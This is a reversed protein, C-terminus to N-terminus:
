KLLVMKKTEIFDGAVLRYIYVGSAVPSGSRNRGNWIKQYYGPPQADEDWRMIEQGMLNYVVLSVDSSKPLAYRLTTEPNFPNPFNRSLSYVTPISPDSSSSPKNGLAAKEQAESTSALLGSAGITVMGVPAELTMAKSITMTENYFSTVISVIGGSSVANVAETVTNYPRLVTGDELTVPHGKDAYKVNSGPFTQIASELADNEFGTGHNGQDPPNCGANTHIGITLTTGNVIVPSGSSGGATDVIYEIVVDSAGQIDEELFPGSDTQQTNSDSNRGGGSGPPTSDSGYGTVRVEGPNDDRSMRYFSQQAQVPLLGTNSNPNCDFVAWDNGIGGNTFNISPQNIPYQDVPDSFNITGDDDSAPVNFELIDMDGLVECHGATLHSGNSAIWGTCRVPLIRGVAPDTSSIRDDSGCLSITKGLAEADEREGVSIQNIRFFVSRDEPAVHLEIEVADGNFYASSNNWQPLSRADLRQRGSDELSNITIYTLSDLHYEGFHLRIWPANPVQIVTHFAVFTGATSDTLGDHIGSDLFNAEKHYPIPDPQALTIVPLCLGIYFTTGSTILLIKM